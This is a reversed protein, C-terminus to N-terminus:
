NQSNKKGSVKEAGKKSIKESYKKGAKKGTISVQNKVGNLKEGKTKNQNLGEIYNDVKETLNKLANIVNESNDLTGNKLHLLIQNIHFVIAQGSYHKDIDEHVAATITTGQLHRVSAKLSKKEGEKKSDGSENVMVFQETWSGALEKTIRIAASAVDLSVGLDIMRLLFSKQENPALPLGHHSNERAADLVMEIHSRYTRFVVPVEKSMNNKYFKEYARKRHYGSVLTKTKEDLVLPELGDGVSLVQFLRSVNMICIRRVMVTEDENIKGLPFKVIQEKSM